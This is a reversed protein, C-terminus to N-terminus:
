VRSRQAHGVRAPNGAGGVIAATVTPASGPPAPGVIAVTATAQAFRSSSVAPSRVVSGCGSLDEEPGVEVCLKLQSAHVAVMEKGALVEFSNEGVQKALVYPGLWVSQLGPGTIGKPRKMWVRDGKQFPRLKRQGSVRRSHDSIRKRLRDGLDQEERERKELWTLAELNEHPVSWPLGFGSRDRGFVLQYPSFGLEPDVTDHRMRIALPLLLVWHRAEELFLKRLIDRIVKGASEARGNAQPRHAQSFVLRCGTLACITSFFSSVFRPDQDTTIIAPVGIEGWSDRWLLMAAKEGTLGAKRTPRAIMWGTFRDVCLLFCDYVEGEFEEEPMDFIDLCVSAMFQDIIPHPRESVQLSVKEAECAQCIRCKARVAAVEKWLDVSTPFCFRRNLERVLRRRGFHGTRAHQAWIVRQVLGEPVLMRGERFLKGQWLQIDSPWSGGDFVPAVEGGGM